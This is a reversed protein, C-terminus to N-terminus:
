FSGRSSEKNSARLSKSSPMVRSYSVKILLYEDKKEKYFRTRTCVRAGGALYNV